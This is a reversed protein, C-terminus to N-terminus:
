QQGRTAEWAGAGRGRRVSFHGRVAGRGVGRGEWTLLGAEERGQRGGALLGRVSAGRM